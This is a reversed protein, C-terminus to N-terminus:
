THSVYSGHEAGMCSELIHDQSLSTNGTLLDLTVQYNSPKNLRMIAM